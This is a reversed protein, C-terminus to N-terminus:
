VIYHWMNYCSNTRVLTDSTNQKLKRHLGGKKVSFNLKGHLM